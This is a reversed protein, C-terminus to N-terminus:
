ELTSSSLNTGLNYGFLCSDEWYLRRFALAVDANIDNVTLTELFRSHHTQHFTLTSERKKNKKLVNSMLHTYSENLGDEYRLIYDCTPAGNGNWVYVFQPMWHCDDSWVAVNESGKKVYERLVRNAQQIISERTKQKQAPMKMKIESLGRDLPERIVCFTKRTGRKYPNPTLYRPPIHWASCHCIVSGPNETCNGFERKNFNYRQGLQKEISAGGTKPIHIFAPPSLPLDLFPVDSFNQRLERCKRDYDKGPFPIFPQERYYFNLVSNKQFKALTLVCQLNLISVTWYAQGARGSFM